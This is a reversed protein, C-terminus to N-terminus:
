VNKIIMSIQTFIIKVIFRLIVSFNIDIEKIKENKVGLM